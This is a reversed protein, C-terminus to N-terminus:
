MIFAVGAAAANSFGTIDIVLDAGPTYGSSNDQDIVLFARGLLDGDTATVLSVGHATAKDQLAASLDRDFNASSLSTFVPADRHYDAAAGVLDLKDEAMDFDVIKDHNRGTSDAASSYVFFDAGAGGHLVDAGRGGTLHDSGGNGYIVDDLRGGILIDAGDGGFIKLVSDTEASGDLRLTEASSLSNGNVTFKGQSSNRDHLTIDYRYATGNASFRADAAGLLVLSEVGQIQDAGLTLTYNGQLALQDDNGGGGFIRDSAGFRGDAGFYFGDSNAGGTLTDTGKGGYFIFSGDTEAAGNFTVSENQALSNMNVILKQGAAVNADVATLDYSFRETSVGGFRTDAGSMLVLTEINVLIEEGLIQAKPGSYDGRLGLQDNGGGGNVRDHRDMASGLYIGDDGAGGIATDSGGQSLNFLSGSARANLLDDAASGFLTASSVNKNQISLLADYRPSSTQYISDLTGWNGWKSPATADEFVVLEHGGAATFDAVMKKYMEGSRPDNTIRKFFALIEDQEENSYNTATFHYGGEYAVLDLGYQKAIGAHYVNRAHSEVLSDKFSLLQASTMENFAATLGAEGSRAWSLVIARDAETAGMLGGGFYTAIAYDEFLQGVTGVNAAQIGQFIYNELGLWVTQTSLVNDVRAHSAAGFVEDAIAAIQASRYGYYKIWAGEAGAGFLAEGMQRAYQAQPFAWNWVENSYELNLKLGPDLNQKIYELASRVFADDAKTPVSYWLETQTENALRVMVELPVAGGWSADDLQPRDAWHEVQSTNTEGWQMYRLVSWQSAKELFAPNFIEGSQYLGLQDERVIEIDHIPDSASISRLVLMMSTGDGTFEFVIKGPESSIIRASGLQIEGTGSYTLEYRDTMPLSVPDLGVMTYIQQAGSPLAVPYGHADLAVPTSLGEWNWGQASWGGSTKFRNLFPYESGYYSNGALALNMGITAM